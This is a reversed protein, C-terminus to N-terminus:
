CALAKVTRDLYFEDNDLNNTFYISELDNSLFGLWHGTRTTTPMEGGVVQRSKFDSNIENRM